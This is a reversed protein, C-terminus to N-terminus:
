LLEGCHPCRKPEKAKRVKASNASPGPPLAAQPQTLAILQYARSRSISHRERCYAEFTKFDRKYLRTDRVHALVEGRTSAAHNELRLLERLLKDCGDLDDPMKDLARSLVVVEPKQSTYSLEDEDLLFAEVYPAPDVRVPVQLSPKSEAIERERERRAAKAYPNEIAM